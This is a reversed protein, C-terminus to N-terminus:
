AVRSCSMVVSCVLMRRATICWAGPSHGPVHIAELETNGFHIKEGDEVYHGLPVAEENPRFGFMRCQDALKELLSEDKRCAEAKLGFERLLFPNGFVHDLHLHTNLLHKVTLKNEDIYKEADAAGGSLLM